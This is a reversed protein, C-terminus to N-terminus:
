FPIFFPISSPKTKSTECLVYHSVRCLMLNVSSPENWPSFLLHTIPKYDTLYLEAKVLHTRSFKGKRATAPVSM